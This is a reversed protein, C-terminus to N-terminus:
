QKDGKTYGDKFWGDGALVFSTQSVKKVMPAKCEECAPAPDVYKQMMEVHTSCVACKFEYIPM